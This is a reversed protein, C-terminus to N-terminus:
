LKGNVATNAKKIKTLKVTAGKSRNSKPAAYARQIIIGVTTSTYCSISAEDLGLYRRQKSSFYSNDYRPADRESGELKGRVRIYRSYM